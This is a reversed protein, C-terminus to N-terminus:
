GEQRHSGLFGGCYWAQLKPQCLFNGEPSSRFASDNIVSLRYGVVEREIGPM